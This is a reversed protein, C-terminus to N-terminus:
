GALPAIRGHELGPQSGTLNDFAHVGTVADCSHDTGVLDYTPDVNLNDFSHDTQVGDFSYPRPLQNDYAFVDGPAGDYAPPAPEAHSVRISIQSM